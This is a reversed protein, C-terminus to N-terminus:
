NQSSGDNDELSMIITYGKTIGDAGAIRYGSCRVSLCENNDRTDLGFKMNFGRDERIVQDWEEEVKARDEACVMNMWGHGKYEEKSQGTLQSYRRNAWTCYGDVGAELVINQGEHMLARSRGDFIVQREEIRDIADRLSGGGNPRIETLLADMGEVLRETTASLKTTTATLTTLNAEVAEVGALRRFMRKTRTCFWSLAKRAFGILAVLAGILAAIKIILDAELM